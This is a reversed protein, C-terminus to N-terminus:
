QIVKDCDCLFMMTNFINTAFGKLVLEAVQRPLYTVRNWFHLLPPGLQVDDGISAMRDLFSAMSQCVNFCSQEAGIYVSASDLDIRMRVREVNRVSGHVIVGHWPLKFVDSSM